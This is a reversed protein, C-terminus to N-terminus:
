EDSDDDSSIYIPEDFHQSGYTPHIGNYFQSPTPSCSTSAPSLARSLEHSFISITKADDDVDNESDSSSSSGSSRSMVSDTEDDSDGSTLDSSILIPESDSRQTSADSPSANPNYPSSSSGSSRSTVGDTEDDSDGSTSDSSILVQESDSHRTSADSPSANPNYSSSAPNYSVHTLSRTSSVVLRPQEEGCKQSSGKQKKLVEFDTPSPSKRRKKGILHNVDTIKLPEPTDSEVSTSSKGVIPIIDM